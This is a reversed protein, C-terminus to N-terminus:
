DTGLCSLIFGLIIAMTGLSVVIALAMGQLKNM